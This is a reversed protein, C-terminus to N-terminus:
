SLVDSDNAQNLHWQDPYNPDNVTAHVPHLGITQAEMVLSSAEYSRVLAEPTTRRPDFTVVYWGSLDPRNTRAAKAPTAGVFQKRLSEVGNVLGLVDLPDLGTIGRHAMGRAGINEAAARKFRVVIRDRVLAVEDPLSTLLAPPPEPALMPQEFSEISKDKEATAISGSSLVLLSSLVITNTRM